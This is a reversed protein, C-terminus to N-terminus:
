IETPSGVELIFGEHIIIEHPLRRKTKRAANSIVM